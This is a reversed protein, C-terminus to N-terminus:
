RSWPRDRRENMSERGIWSRFLHCRSLQGSPSQGQRAKSNGRSSELAKSLRLYDEDTIKGENLLEDLKQQSSFGASEM